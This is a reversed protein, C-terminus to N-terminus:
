QGEGLSVFIRLKGATEEVASPSLHCRCVCLSIIVRNLEQPRIEGDMGKAREWM